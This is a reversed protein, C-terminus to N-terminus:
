RRGNRDANAPDIRVISVTSPKSTDKGLRDLAVRLRAVNHADALAPGGGHAGEVVIGTHVPGAGADDYAVAVDGPRAQDPRNGINTGLGSDMLYDYLSHYGVVHSILLLNYVRGDRAKYHYFDSQPSDGHLGPMLGAAALARSVFEACQFGLQNTGAAARPTSDDWSSWTWHSDAYAVAAASWDGGAPASTHPAGQAPPAALVPTPSLATLASALGLGALIASRTKAKRIM